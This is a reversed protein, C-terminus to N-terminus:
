PQKKLTQLGDTVTVKASEQLIDSINLHTYVDVTTSYDAHGLMRQLIEPKVGSQVAMTTFTHRCNYPTLGEIGAKKMLDKWDRKAFNAYTHNGDYAEILLTAGSDIARQRLRHYADIGVPTVPIARNRGAETKSGSVFYTEHSNETTAIFLENPRCGTAILILAIDAAPHSTQAIAAIQEPTFVERSVAESAALTVYPAYNTTCIEERIAWKSLQGFLQVVKACSAKSLGKAEMILIVEQFDSARLKRFVRGYLPGCHKYATKYGEMGKSTINRRHEPFWKEYVESFTLNITDTIHRGSLKLLAQEAEYKTKFCGIYVGDKQAEWPKTRSGPKKIISGMGNTRKKTKRTTTVQKKGCWPCFLAGDPISAKCKVCDM